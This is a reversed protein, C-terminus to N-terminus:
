NFNVFLNEFNTSRSLAVYLLNPQMGRSVHVCLHDISLGQSKHVTIAYALKMPMQIYSGVVTEAGGEYVIKTWTAMQIQYVEKTRDSRFSIQDNKLAVVDGVDGNVLGIEPLNKCIIVRAGVKLQLQEPVMCEEKSYRGILIGNYTVSTGPLSYLKKLNHSNVMDNYPMLHVTKDDGNGMQFETVASLDGNRIRNLLNILKPDNQRKIEELELTEFGEFSKANEFSLTGYKARIESVM